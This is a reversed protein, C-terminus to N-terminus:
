PPDYGGRSYPNCRCIRWIGKLIGYLVGYKKIALIMYTSCSPEFRCTDKPLFPSIFFKYFYILGIFPYSPLSYVFSVAVCKRKIAATLTLYLM